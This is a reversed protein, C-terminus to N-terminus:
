LRSTSAARRTVISRLIRLLTPAELREVYERSYYLDMTWPPKADTPHLLARVFTWIDAVTYCGFVEIDAPPNTAGRLWATALLAGLLQSRPDTADM